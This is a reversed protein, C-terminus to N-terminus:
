IPYDFTLEVALENYDIEFTNNVKLKQLYEKAVNVSEECSKGDYFWGSGDFSYMENEKALIDGGLIVRNENRLEELVQGIDLISWVYDPKYGGLDVVIRKDWITENM